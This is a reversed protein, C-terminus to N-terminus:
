PYSNNLLSSRTSATLSFLGSYASFSFTQILRCGTSDTLYCSFIRLLFPAHFIYSVWSYVCFSTRLLAHNFSLASEIVLGAEATGLLIVIKKRLSKKYVTFYSLGSKQLFLLSFYMSSFLLCMLFRGSRGKQGLLQLFVNVSKSWYVHTSSTKVSLVVTCQLWLLHM